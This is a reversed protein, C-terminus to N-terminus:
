QQVTGSENSSLMTVPDCATADDDGSAVLALARMGHAEAKATHSYADTYVVGALAVSSLALAITAFIADRYKM